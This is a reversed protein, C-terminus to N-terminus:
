PRRPLLFCKDCGARLMIESNILSSVERTNSQLLHIFQGMLTQPAPTNDSTSLYWANFQWKGEGCSINTEFESGIHTTLNQTNNLPPSNSSPRPLRNQNVLMSYDPSPESYSPSMGTVSGPSMSQSTIFAIFRCFNFSLECSPTIFFKHKSRVERTNNQLLHIAQPPQKLGYTSAM